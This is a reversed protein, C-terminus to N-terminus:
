TPIVLQTQPDILDLIRAELPPIEAFKIQFAEMLTGVEQFIKQIEEIQGADALRAVDTVIKDQWSLMQAGLLLLEDIKEHYEQQVKQLEEAFEPTKPSLREYRKREFTKVIEAFQILEQNFGQALTNLSVPHSM